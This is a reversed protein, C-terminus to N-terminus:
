LVLSCSTWVGCIIEAGLGSKLTNRSKKVPSLNREDQDILEIAISSSRNETINYNRHYLQLLIPLLINKRRCCVDVDAFCSLNKAYNRIVEEHTVQYIM